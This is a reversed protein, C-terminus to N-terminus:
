SVPRFLREALLLARRELVAPDDPVLSSAIEYEYGDFFALFIATLDEVSGPEVGLSGDDAGRQVAARIHADWLEYVSDLRERLEPHRRALSSMELWLLGRGHLSPMGCVVGIMGRLRDWPALQDDLSAFHEVLEGSARGLAEGLLQERTGFYHQIIGISVGAADSVDRLRTAEYGSKSICELAAALIARKKLEKGRAM